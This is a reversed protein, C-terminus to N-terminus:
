GPGGEAALPAIVEDAFRAIGACKRELTEAPGYFLWPVTVLHTVGQEELRRYADPTFADAVAACVSFPTGARPSDQRAERLTKLIGPLEDQRHIESLWGDCLSAARRLAPRSVGGGWVPLPADPVPSMQVADFRYFEGEHAVPEGSLLARLIGLSEELRRGRRAFPQGVLEFEEKMWGAGIGLVVRDGSLVAATAISKAAIVPHRLPLVYISTIFRLRETATALAGITVFPDPWPTDPEWRPRGDSTYPYPTALTQPYVLHDSLIVAEFGGAEAARALAVLERPDNYALAICFKM